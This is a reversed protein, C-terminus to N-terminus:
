QPQGETCHVCTEARNGHWIKNIIVYELSGSMEMWWILPQHSPSSSRIDCRCRHTHMKVVKSGVFRVGHRRKAGAERFCCLSCAKWSSQVCAGHPNLLMKVDWTSGSSPAVLDMFSDRQISLEDWLKACPSCLSKTVNREPCGEGAMM